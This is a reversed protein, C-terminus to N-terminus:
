ARPLREFLEVGVLLLPLPQRAEVARQELAEAGLRGAVGVALIALPQADPRREALDAPVFQALALARQRRELDREPEVAGVALAVLPEGIEVHLRARLV